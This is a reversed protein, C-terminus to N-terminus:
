KAGPLLRGSLAGLTVGYAVHALILAAQRGREDETPPPMIKMAPIWGDYSVKWIGLGAILGTVANPRLRGSLLTYLAGAAAGFGVHQVLMLPRFWRKLTPERDTTSETLRESVREPPAQSRYVGAARLGWVVASQPGTALAGAFAGVAIRKLM